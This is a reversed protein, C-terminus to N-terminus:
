IALIKRLKEREANIADYQQNLNSYDHRRLPEVIGNIATLLPTLGLNAAVGKLTHAHEFAAKFEKSLIARELGAFSIDEIFSHLCDYYLREDNVFREMVENINVGYARLTDNLNTM